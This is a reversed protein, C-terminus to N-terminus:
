LPHPAIQLSPGRLPGGSRESGAGAGGCPSLSFSPIPNMLPNSVYPTPYESSESWRCAAANVLRGYEGTASSPTICVILHCMGEGSGDTEDHQVSAGLDQAALQEVVHPISWKATDKLLENHWHSGALM